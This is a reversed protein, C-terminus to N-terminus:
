GIIGCHLLLGYIVKAAEARTASKLPEFGNGTGNIIKASAMAAVSETAYDSVDGADKFGLKAEKNFEAGCLSAARYAMVAMDQRSINEEAGFVDESIGNIVGSKKASAVAKYSWRETPVDIFNCEANAEALGFARVIITAYEERTINDNPAFLTPEKGKIIGNDYLFLIANNAWKVDEIDTFPMEIPEIEEKVTTEPEKYTYGGGGSSGGGRISTSGGGKDTSYYKDVLDDIEDKIQSAKTITEDAILGKFDTFISKLQSTSTVKSIKTDDIKTDDPYKELIGEQENWLALSLEKMLIADKLSESTEEASYSKSMLKEAVSEQDDTGFGDWAEKYKVNEIGLKTWNTDILTVATSEDAAESIQQASINSSISKVLEEKDTEESIGSIVNKCIDNKSLKKFSDYDVGMRGYYDDILKELKASTKDADKLFGDIATNMDNESYTAFSDALSVSGDFFSIRVVHNSQGLEKSVEFEFNGDKDATVQDAYLYYKSIETLDASKLDDFVYGNELVEIRVPMNGNDAKGTVVYKGNEYGSETIENAYVASSVSMVGVLALSFLKKNMLNVGGM